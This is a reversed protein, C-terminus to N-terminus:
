GAAPQWDKPLVAILRWATARVPPTRSSGPLTVRWCDEGLHLAKRAQDELFGPATASHAPDASCSKGSWTPTNALHM